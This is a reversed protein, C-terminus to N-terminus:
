SRIEAPQIAVTRSSHANEVFKAVEDLDAVWWIKQKDRRERDGGDVGNGGKSNISAVPTLRSVEFGLRELIGKLEKQGSGMPDDRVCIGMDAAVLCGFDTASDGVYVTTCDDERRVEEFRALKDASTCIYPTRQVEELPLENAFIPISGMVKADSASSRSLATQLCSRVFTASWNVSIISLSTAVLTQQQLSESLSLLKRWGPRLQLKGDHVASRSASVIDNKTVGKFIGAAKVREISSREVNKLSALWESEEAVTKREKESPTYSAKHQSYDSLYAQVIDDWPTLNGGRNHEYGIASVLHLTDRKTLTGDWDLVVRIHNRPRQM